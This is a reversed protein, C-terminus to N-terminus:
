SRRIWKSEVLHAEKESVILLLQITYSFSLAIFVFMSGYEGVAEFSADLDPHVFDAFQLNIKATAM